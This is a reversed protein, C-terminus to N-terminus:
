MTKRDDTNETDDTDETDGLLEPLKSKFNSLDIEYNEPLIRGYSRALSHIHKVNVSHKLALVSPSIQKEICEDLIAEIKEQEASPLLWPMKRPYNVLNVIYSPSLKRGSNTVLDRIQKAKVKYKLALVSPSILKETCDEIIMQRDNGTLGNIDVLKNHSIDKYGDIFKFAM